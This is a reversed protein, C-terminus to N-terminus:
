ASSDRSYQTTRDLRVIVTSFVRSRMGAARKARTVGFRRGELFTPPRLSYRASAAGAAKHAFLSFHVCAHDPLASREPVGQAIAKRSVGRDGRLVPSTLRRGGPKQGPTSGLTPPVPGRPKVTRARAMRRFARVADM